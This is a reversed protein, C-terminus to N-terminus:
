FSERNRWHKPDGYANSIDRLTQKVVSQCKDLGYMASLGYIGSEIHAMDLACLDHFEKLPDDSIYSESIDSLIRRWERIKQREKKNKM